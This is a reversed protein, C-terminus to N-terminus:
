VGREGVELEGFNYKLREIAQDKLQGVRAKSIGMLAGVEKHTLKEFETLEWVRKERSPLALFFIRLHDKLVNTMAEDETPRQVDSRVDKKEDDEDFESISFYIVQNMTQIILNAEKKSLNMRESLETARPDRGFEKRLQAFKRLRSHFHSPVRITRSQDEIERVISQRIWWTAYTSFNNGREPEFKDIAPEFGKVGSQLLDDFGVGKDKYKKAVSAVLGLNTLILENKANKGQDARLQLEKKYEFSGKGNLSVIEDEAENGVRIEEILELQEDPSLPSFRCFQSITMGAIDGEQLTDFLTKEFVPQKSVSFESRSM